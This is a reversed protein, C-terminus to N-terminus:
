AVFDRSYRKKQPKPTHPITATSAINKIKLFPGAKWASKSPNSERVGSWEAVKSGDSDHGSRQAIQWGDVFHHFAKRGRERLKRSM